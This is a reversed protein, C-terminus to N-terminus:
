LGLSRPACLSGRQKLGAPRGGHFAPQLGFLDLDQFPRATAPNAVPAPDGLGGVPWAGRDARGAWPGSMAYPSTAPAHPAFASSQKLAIYIWVGACSATLTVVRRLQGNGLKWLTSIAYGGNLMAGVGFVFGGAVPVGSLHWLPGASLAEPYFAILPLTVVLAWLMIKVFSALLHARGTSLVEAVALVTCMSSRHAAFGLAHALVLSILLIVITM